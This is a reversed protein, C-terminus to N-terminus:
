ICQLASYVQQRVVQLQSGSETWMDTPFVTQFDPHPVSLQDCVERIQKIVRERAVQGPIPLSDNPRLRTGQIGKVSVPIVAVHGNVIRYGEVSSPITHCTCM